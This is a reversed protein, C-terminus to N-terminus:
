PACWGTQKNDNVHFCSEDQFVTIVRKEDPRLDPEVRVLGVGEPKWQVMHREYSAMLPLFESNRYEVVDPREHGDMYVGKKVRTRRWGLSLLWQRATRESLGDRVTFGLSPLIRKNLARHFKKPTVEGTPVSSLHTRAAAQVREDKLLSRGGAGGRKEEPLQEFLQYHRALFRIQRAFYAGVGDQWVRAIEKSAAIRRVGKIRLMAFNQLITLKNLHTPRENKKQGELWDLKLQERLEKWSRIDEKAKPGSGSAEMFNDM